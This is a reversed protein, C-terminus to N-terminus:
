LQQGGRMANSFSNVWQQPNMGIASSNLAPSNPTTASIAGPNSNNLINQVASVDNPLGIASTALNSPTALSSLAGGGNGIGIGALQSDLSGSDEAAATGVDGAADLADLPATVPLDAGLTAITAIAALPGLANWFSGGSNPDTVSAQQIQGILSPNSSYDQQAATNFSAQEEPTAGQYSQYINAFDGPTLNGIYGAATPDDPFPSTSLPISGPTLYQNLNAASYGPTIAQNIIPQAAM